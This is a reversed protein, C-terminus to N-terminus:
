NLRQYDPMNKEALHPALRKSMDLMRNKQAHNELKSNSNASQSQIQTDDLGARRQMYSFSGHGAQLHGHETTAARFYLMLFVRIAATLSSNEDKRQEILSCLDHITCNERKAISKIAKWMEPELQVSTRRGCVKINKSVLSSKPILDDSALEKMGDSM